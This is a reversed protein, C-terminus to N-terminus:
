YDGFDDIFWGTPLSDLKKPDVFTGRTSAYDNVPKAIYTIHPPKPYYTGFVLDTDDGNATQLGIKTKDSGIINNYLDLPMVWAYKLTPGAANGDADMTQLDVYVVRSRPKLNGRGRSTVEKKTKFGGSKLFTDLKEFSVYSTRWRGDVLKKARPPKPCNAGLILGPIYVGNPAAEVQGFDTRLTSELKNRFGFLVTTGDGVIAQAAVLDTKGYRKYAM